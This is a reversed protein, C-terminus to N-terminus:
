SKNLDALYFKVSYLRQATFWQMLFEFYILWMLLCFGINGDRITVLIKNPCGTLLFSSFRNYNQYISLFYIRLPINNYM